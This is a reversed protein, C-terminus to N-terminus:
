VNLGGVKELNEPDNILSKIWDYSQYVQGRRITNLEDETFEQKLDIRYACAFLKGHCSKSIRDATLYQPGNDSNFGKLRVRYKPGDFRQEVPTKKMEQVLGLIYFMDLTSLGVASEWSCAIGLDKVNIDVLLFWDNNISKAKYSYILIRQGADDVSAYAIQNVKKVFENVKM